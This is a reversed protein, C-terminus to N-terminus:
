MTAAGMQLGSVHLLQETREVDEFSNRDNTKNMKDM